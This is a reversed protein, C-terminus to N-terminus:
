QMNHLFLFAFISLIPVFEGPTATSLNISEEEAGEERSKLWPFLEDMAQTDHTEHPQCSSFKM